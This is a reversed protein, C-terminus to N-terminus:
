HIAQLSTFHQVRLIHSVIFYNSYNVLCTRKTCFTNSVPDGIAVPSGLQPYWRLVEAWCAEANWPNEYNYIDKSPIQRFASDISQMQLPHNQIRTTFIDAKKMQCKHLSVECVFFLTFVMRWFILFAYMCDVIKRMENNYNSSVVTLM